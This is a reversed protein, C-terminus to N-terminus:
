SGEGFHENVLKVIADRAEFEDSGTINLELTMGKTAGLLILSMISKCNAVHENRILDITSQFQSACAVLKAAARTHLGLKNQITITENIMYTETRNLIRFTIMKM